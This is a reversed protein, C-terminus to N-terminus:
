LPTRIESHGCYCTQSYIYMYVCKRTPYFYISSEHRKMIHAYGRRILLQVFYETSEKVQNQCYLELVDSSEMKENNKDLKGKEGYLKNYLYDLVKKMTLIDQASLRDSYTCCFLLFLVIGLNYSRLM